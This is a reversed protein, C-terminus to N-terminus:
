QSTEILNLIESYSMELFESPRVSRDDVYFGETGCWPKGVIIEDFPIKHCELWDIILPLTVVNIKGISGELSNMNRATHIVITFGARKYVNIKEIIGKRPKAKRYDRESGVTITGDLDLILRKLVSESKVDKGVKIRM